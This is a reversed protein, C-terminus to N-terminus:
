EPMMPLSSAPMLAARDPANEPTNSPMGPMASSSTAQRSVTMTVPKKEFMAVPTMKMDAVIGRAAINLRAGKTSPTHIMHADIGPNMVGPPVPVAGYRWPRVVTVFFFIYLYMNENRANNRITIRMNPMIMFAM